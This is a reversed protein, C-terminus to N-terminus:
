DPVKYKWIFVTGWLMLIRHIKEYEAVFLVCHKLPKVNNTFDKQELFKSLLFFFGAEGKIRKHIEKM